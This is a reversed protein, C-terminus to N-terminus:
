LTSVNKFYTLVKKDIDNCVGGLTYDDNLTPCWGFDCVSIKGNLVLLEEDLKIDMPKCNFNRLTIKIDELQEDYDYPKNDKTIRVGKYEMVIYPSGNYNKGYSMINPVRSYDKFSMLWYLEREFVGNKLHENKFVKIVYTKTFDIYVQSLGTEIVYYKDSLKNLNHSLMDNSALYIERTSRTNGIKHVYPFNKHLAELFKNKSYQEVHIAKNFNLHKFQQIAKDQPSIWEILLHKNTIGKLFEIIKFISGYRATCSYIWHMVAFITVIDAKRNINQVDISEAKINNDAGLFKICKNVTNIYESDYDYLTIDKYGQLWANFGICGNSCGIDLLSTNPNDKVFKELYHQILNFKTNLYENLETIKNKYLNFNQYGRIKLYTGMNVINSSEQQSGVKRKPDRYNNFKSKTDKEEM